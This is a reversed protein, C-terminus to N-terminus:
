ARGNRGQDRVRSRSRVHRRSALRPPLVQAKRAREALALAGRIPWALAIPATPVRDKEGRPVHEGGALGVAVGVGVFEGLWIGGAGGSSEDGLELSEAVGDGLLL